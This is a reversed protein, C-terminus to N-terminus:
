LGDLGLKEPLLTDGPEPSDGVLGTYLGLEGFQLGM